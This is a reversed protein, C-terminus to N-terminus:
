GTECALKADTKRLNGQRLKANRMECIVWLGRRVTPQANYRNYMDAMMEIELDTLLKLQEEQSLHAM